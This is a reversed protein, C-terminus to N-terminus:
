GYMYVYGDGGSEGGMWAAVHCQASNGTSYPLDRNPTWTLHLQKYMDMGLERVIGQGMRGAPLWLSRRLRHTQKQKTLLNMQIVEKQIGCILSTVHYKEKESKSRETHCERPGGM